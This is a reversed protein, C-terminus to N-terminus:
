REKESEVDISIALVSNQRSIVGSVMAGLALGLLLARPYHM